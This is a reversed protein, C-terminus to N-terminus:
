WAANEQSVPRRVAAWYARLIRKIRELFGMSGDPDFNPSTPELPSSECETYHEYSNVEWGCRNCAEM